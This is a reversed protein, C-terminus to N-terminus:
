EVDGSKFDDCKTVPPYFRAEHGKKCGTDVERDYHYHLLNICDGCLSDPM